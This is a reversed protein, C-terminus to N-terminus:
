LEFFPEFYPKGEADVPENGPVKSRRDRLEEYDKM